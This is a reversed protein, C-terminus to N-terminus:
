GRKVEIPWRKHSEEFIPDVWGDVDEVIDMNNMINGLTEMRNATDRGIMNLFGLDNSSAYAVILEGYVKAIQSAMHAIVRAQDCVQRRLDILDQDPKNM